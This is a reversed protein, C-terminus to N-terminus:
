VAICRKKQGLLTFYRKVSFSPPPIKRHKGICQLHKLLLSKDDPWSGHLLAKEVAQHCRNFGDLAMRLGSCQIRRQVLQQYVLFIQRGALAGAQITGKGSVRDENNSIGGAKIFDKCLCKVIGRKDRRCRRKKAHVLCHDMENFTVM